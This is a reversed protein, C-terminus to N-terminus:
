DLIKAYAEHGDKTHLDNKLEVTPKEDIWNYNMVDDLM